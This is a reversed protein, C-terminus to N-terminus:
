APNPIGALSGASRAPGAGVAAADMGRRFAVRIPAVRVRYWKARDVELPRCATGTSRGAPLGGAVGPVASNGELEPHGVVGRSGHLM